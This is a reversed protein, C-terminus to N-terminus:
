GVSGYRHSPDLSMAQGIVRYLREGFRFAPDVAKALPQLTDGAARDMADPPARGSLLWYFTAALAYVDARRDAATDARYQEPPSFGPTVVIEGSSSRAGQETAAGFDILVPKGRSGSVFINGPKLDRHVFGAAHVHDLADCAARMLDVVQGHGLGVRQANGWGQLDAGDLMEYVIYATNNTRFFDHIRVVGEHRLAFTIRAEESFYFQAWRM